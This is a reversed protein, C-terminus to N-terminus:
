SGQTEEVHGKASVPNPHLVHTEPNEVRAQDISRQNSPESAHESVEQIQTLPEELSSELYNDSHRDKDGDAAVHFTTVSSKLPPSPMRAVRISEDLEREHPPSGGFISDQSILFPLTHCM